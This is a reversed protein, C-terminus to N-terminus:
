DICTLLYQIYASKIDNKLMGTYIRLHDIYELLTKKQIAISTKSNDALDISPPKPMEAFDPLHYMRCHLHTDVAPTVIKTVAHEDPLTNYDITVACGALLAASLILIPKIM